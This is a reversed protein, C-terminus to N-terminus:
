AADDTDIAVEVLTVQDGAVQVTAFGAMEHSTREDNPKTLWTVLVPVVQRGDMRTSPLSARASQDLAPSDEDIELGLSLMADAAIGQPNAGEIKVTPQIQWHHMSMVAIEVSSFGRPAPVKTLTQTQM